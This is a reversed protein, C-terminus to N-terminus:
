RGYFRMLRGMIPQRILKANDLVPAPLGITPTLELTAFELFSPFLSYFQDKLILYVMLNFSGIPNSNPGFVIDHCRTM